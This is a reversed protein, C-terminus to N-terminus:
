RRVQLLHVRQNRLKPRAYRLERGNARSGFSHARAVRAAARPVHAVTIVRAVGAVALSAVPPPQRGDHVQVLAPCREVAALEAKKRRVRGVVPWREGAHLRGRM